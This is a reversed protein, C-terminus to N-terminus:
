PVTIEFDDIYWGAQTPDSFDDSNFRFEIVVNKGGAAVPLAKSFDTWGVPSNGDIAAQLIALEANADDADLLRVQGSDFGEEIDVYQLFNLTAGAAATLDIVPSRLWIDAENAYDASLNTAFCNAGSNAIAPGVVSPSGFEWNTFPVLGTDGGTSWPKVAGDFDDSFVSMPPAPFEEVVFLRLLEAPLPFTVTNEPPTAVINEKGDFIPWVEPLSASPDTESRLNYLLGDQSEWSISHEDADSDYSIRLQVREGTFYKSELSREVAFREQASLVRDYIILEAYNGDFHQHDPLMSFRSGVVFPTGNNNVDNSVNGSAQNDGDISLSSNAGDAVATIITYEGTAPINTNDITTGDDRGFRLKLPDDFAIMYWRETGGDPGTDFWAAIGDPTAPFQSVVFITAV